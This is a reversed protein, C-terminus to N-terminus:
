VKLKFTESLKAISDEIGAKSGIFLCDDVWVVAYVPGFTEDEQVFLCPDVLSPEFGAVRMVEKFAQFFARASQKLGYITKILQLCEDVTHPMGEPCDMYVAEDEGLVGHLFATEVDVLGCVLGKILLIVLLLRVTVDNVVPSYIQHFDVGPIQSYGCAVLRARFVGNRKIEFVWKHKVCRRDGPMERRNIKKWVGLAEM